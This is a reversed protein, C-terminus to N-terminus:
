VTAGVRRNWAGLTGLIEPATMSSSNDKQLIAKLLRNQERLLANQESNAEYVGQAVADQMQDVNMVGTRSGIQSVVEAGSEGAIFMTGASFIGGEAAAPVDKKIQVLPIEPIPIDKLNKFPQVGAVTFERLKTIIDNIKQFPTKLLWNLGSIIGNLVNTFVKELGDKITTFVNGDVSFVSKM